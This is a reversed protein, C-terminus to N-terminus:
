IEYEDEFKNLNAKYDEIGKQTGETLGESDYLTSVYTYAYKIPNFATRYEGQIEEDDIDNIIATILEVKRKAAAIESELEPSLKRRKKRPM